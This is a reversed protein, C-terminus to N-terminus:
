SLAASTTAMEKSRASFAAVAPVPDLLVQLPRNQRQRSRHKRM